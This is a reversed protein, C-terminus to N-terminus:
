KLRYGKGAVYEVNDMKRLMVGVVNTFDASTTRYGAALAQQALEGSGLPRKSKRLLGTLVM